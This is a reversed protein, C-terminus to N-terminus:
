MPELNACSLTTGHEVGTQRYSTLHVSAYSTTHKKNRALLITQLTNKEMKM